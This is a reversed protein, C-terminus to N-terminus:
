EVCSSGGSFRDPDLTSWETGDAAENRIAVSGAPPRCEGVPTPANGIAVHRSKIPPDSRSQIAVQGPLAEVREVIRRCCDIRDRDIMAEFALL